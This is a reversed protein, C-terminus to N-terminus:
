SRTLQTVPFQSGCARNARFDSGRQRLRMQSQFNLLFLLRFFILFRALKERHVRPDQQGQTSIQSEVRGRDDHMRMEETQRHDDHVVRYVQGIPKSERPTCTSARLFRLLAMELESTRTRASVSRHQYGCKKAIRIETVPM